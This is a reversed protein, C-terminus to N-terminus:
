CVFKLPRTKAKLIRFRCIMAYERQMNLTGDEKLRNGDLAFFIIIVIIFFLIFENGSETFSVIREIALPYEGPLIIM